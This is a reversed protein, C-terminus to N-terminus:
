QVIAKKKNLKLFPKISFIVGLLILVYMGYSSIFRGVTTEVVAPNDRNYHITIKDGISELGGVFPIRFVEANGIQEKGNELNFKIIASSKLRKGRYTTIQMVEGETQVWNSNQSFTFSTLMLVVLLFAYKM